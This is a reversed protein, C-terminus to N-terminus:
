MVYITFNGKPISKKFDKIEIDQTAVIFKKSILKFSKKKGFVKTFIELLFGMDADIDITFEKEESKEIQSIFGEKLSKQLSDITKKQEKWDNFFKESTKVIQNEPVSFIEQIQKISQQKEEIFKQAFERVVYKLRIVGDQIKQSETIKLYGIGQRKYM